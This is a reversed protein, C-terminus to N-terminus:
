GLGPPQFLWARGGAQAIFLGSWRAGHVETTAQEVGGTAPAPDPFAVRNVVALGPACAELGRVVEPTLSRIDGLVFDGYAWVGNHRVALAVPLPGRIVSAEDPLTTPRGWPKRAVRLRVDQAGNAYAVREAALVASLLDAGEQAAVFLHDAVLQLLGSSALVAPGHDAAGVRMPDIDADLSVLGQAAKELALFDGYLISAGAILGVRAEPAGDLWAAVDKGLGRLATVDEIWTLRLASPKMGPGGAFLLRPADDNTVLMLAPGLKPTFNSLWALSAHDFTNGYVICHTLGRARMLARLQSLRQEYTARSTVSAHWDYPGTPLAISPMLM